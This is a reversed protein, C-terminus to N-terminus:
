YPLQRGINSKHIKKHNRCHLKAAMQNISLSPLQTCWLQQQQKNGTEHTV